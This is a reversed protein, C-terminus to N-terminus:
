ATRLMASRRLVSYHEACTDELHGRAAEEVEAQESVVYHARHVLEEFTAGPAGVRPLKTAALEQARFLAHLEREAAAVRQQLIQREEGDLQLRAQIRARVKAM